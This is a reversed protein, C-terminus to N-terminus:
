LATRRHSRGGRQTRNRECLEETRGSDLSLVVAPSGAASPKVCLWERGPLVAGTKFEKEEEETM